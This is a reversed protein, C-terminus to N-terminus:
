KVIPTYGHTEDEWDEITPDWYILNGLLSFQLRYVISKNIAWKYDYTAGQIDRLPITKTIQEAVPTDTGNSTSVTYIVSVTATEDNFEQPLFYTMAPSVSKEEHGFGLNGSYVSATYNDDYELNWSDDPMQTYTGKHSIKNFAISNLTFTVDGSVLPDHGNTYDKDTSVKFTIKTLKHRFVTPVEKNDTLSMDKAPDAVLLDIDKNAGVDYGEVVVGASPTFSATLSAPAYAFFTLYGSTPWYYPTETHWSNGKFPAAADAYYKVEKGPIWDETSNGDWPGDHKYAYATFSESQPFPNAAKTKLGAQVPSFTLPDAEERVGIETKTCGIAVITLTAITLFKKM